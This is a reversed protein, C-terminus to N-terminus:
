APVALFEALTSVWAAARREHCEATATGGAATMTLLPLGRYADASGVVDLGAGAIWGGHLASRLAAPDILAEASVNILYAGPKMSRLREHDMLHHTEATLPLTLFVADSRRLLEQLDTQTGGEFRRPSRNAFVVRMGFGLAIRAVRTGIDGLGVVGATRGELDVGLPVAAARDGPARAAADRDCIRRTRALLLAFAHEAVSPGTYSPTDRVAVGRAACHELDIYDVATSTALVLRLRPLRALAAAGLDQHAAVLITFERLSPDGQPYRALTGSWWTPEVLEGLRARLPAPVEAPDLLVLARPKGTPPTM